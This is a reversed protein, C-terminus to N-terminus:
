LCLSLRNKSKEVSSGKLKFVNLKELKFDLCKRRADTTHEQLKGLLSMNFPFV